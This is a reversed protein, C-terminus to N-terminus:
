FFTNGGDDPHCYDAISTESPLITGMMLTVFISLRNKAGKLQLRYM